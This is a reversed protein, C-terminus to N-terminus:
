RGRLKADLSWPGPGAASLYLWVFCYIVAPIGGNVVPWFSQPAHFMFYAVAMQGALVFAVPRTFLGLLILTGGVVELLGGIGVLSALEATQGDPMAMPFAFLKITGSPIFVFAAVIRLVSKLRPGQAAWREALGGSGM